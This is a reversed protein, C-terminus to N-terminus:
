VINHNGINCPAHCIFPPDPPPYIHRSLRLSTNYYHPYHSIPPTIFPHSQNKCLCFCTFSYRTFALLGAQKCSRLRAYETIADGELANAHKARRQLTNKTIDRKQPPPIRHSVAPYLSICSSVFPYLQICHSVAPYLPDAAFLSSISRHYLSVRSVLSVTLYLRSIPSICAPYIGFYV